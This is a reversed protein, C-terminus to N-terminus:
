RTSKPIHHLFNHHASCHYNQEDLILAIHWGHLHNVLELVMPNAGVCSALPTLNHDLISAHYRICDTTTKHRITSENWPWQIPVLVHPSFFSGMHALLLACLEGVYWPVEESTTLLGPCRGKCAQHCRAPGLQCGPNHWGEEGPLDGPLSQATIFFTIILVVIIIKNM